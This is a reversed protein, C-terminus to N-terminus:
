MGAAMMAKFEHFDVRGDSDRDHAAIMDQVRAMCAAEPVGMRELVAQLEAASIYGDGNEDFVAFAERMEAEEDEEGGGALEAHLAEFDAFRLGPMGPAVYAAVLGDAQAGLALGLRGLAGSLEAATIVGDGDHDFLDFVRRVRLRRHRQQQQQNAQPPATSM